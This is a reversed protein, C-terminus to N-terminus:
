RHKFEPKRKEIFAKIGEQSDETTFIEKFAAEEEKLGHTLSLQETKNILDKMRSLSQLSQGAIQRALQEAVKKGESKKIVQNVIGLQYAEDASLPKGNFMLEKAKAKGIERPLRQTGGGGPLLGLNVEPLGIQAHEEAVRIDCTLALELGGGLTFGNLLAITPKPISEIKNFIGHIDKDYQNPIDSLCEKIDAGAIFARDGEGTLIITIVEEDSELQNFVDDLEHVM